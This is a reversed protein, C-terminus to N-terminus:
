IYLIYYMGASKKAMKEPLAISVTYIYCTHVLVHLDVYTIIILLLKSDIFSLKEIFAFEIVNFSKHLYIICKITLNEQNYM